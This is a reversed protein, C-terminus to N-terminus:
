LCAAPVAHEPRSKTLERAKDLRRRCSRADGAQVRCTGRLYAVNINSEAQEIAACCDRWKGCSTISGNGDGGSCATLMSVIVILAAALMKARM